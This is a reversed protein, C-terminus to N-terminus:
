LTQSCLTVLKEYESNRDCIKAYKWFIEKPGVSSENRIFMIQYRGEDEKTQIHDFKEFTVVEDINLPGPQGLVLQSNIFKAM